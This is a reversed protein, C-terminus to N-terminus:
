EELVKDVIKKAEGLYNEPKLLEDIDQKTLYRKIQSNRKIEAKFNDASTTIIRLIEHADQRSAGKKTLAIMIAEAMNKGKTLHLNRKINEPFFVLNKYVKITTKLMEDVLVFSEPIIAREPASNTLDREHWLNNNLLAPFVNGYIIRAIGCVKESNIPNKKHPMTSSGVQDKEFGEAVEMIETRQLNRVETCMKDLLTALLALNTIIEAYIDRSVVQNTIKAMKINLIKEVNEALLFSDDYSAMTGVAGAVKGCNRKLSTLIREENRKLEDLFLAFKMGYTTPIAHQAHTRGVCITNKHKKALEKLVIKLTRVDKLVINLADRFQIATATDNIDNSTAGFHVFGGWRGCKSSLVKVMAMIDHNTKKEERAVEEITVFDVRAKKEIEIAAKEPIHDLNAHAKAIAAEVNLLLQLRKKEDFIKKMEDSGYRYDIPHLM